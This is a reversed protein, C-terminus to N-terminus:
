RRKTPPTVVGDDDMGKRKVGFGIRVKTRDSGNAVGVPTAYGSGSPTASGTDDRGGIRAFAPKMRTAAPAPSGETSTPAASIPVIGPALESNGVAFSTMDVQQIPMNGEKKKGKGVKAAKSAKSLAANDLVDELQPVAGRNGVSLVMHATGVKAQRKQFAENMSTPTDGSIMAARKKEDAIKKLRKETKMKGSGKGHFRHSLAKWAEKKDMERGFEDYYKIEVDPKYNKFSDMSDRADQQERLRNEYERQTQDKNSGKARLREMERMALRRRNDVLWDDNAKQVKERDGVEQTPATVVGQKRLISLTGALGGSFNENTTGIGDDEREPEQYTSSSATAGNIADAIFNLAAEDDDDESESGGGDERKVDVDMEALPEAGDRKPSLQTKITIAIPKSPQQPVQKVVPDYTIARVFETTDDFTLGEGERGDEDAGNAMATDGNQTAQIAEAEKEAREQALQVAIQEPSIKARKVKQRRSRALAAQLDEDDIFNADMDRQRPVPTPDVQMVTDPEEAPEGAAAALEIDAPARRSSKKKTKPKKFGKDEAYDSIEQNKAYDISLLTKNIATANQEHVGRQTPKAHYEAAGLRFGANEQAGLIDEDYKALVSKKLGDTGNTFEDDDYGTYDRRKTKLDKRKKDKEDEAMDINHLEDEENDLIRSDKLTLIRNEGEDLDEFDHSVKLGALDKETYDELVADRSDLEAQRKAALKKEQKKSRKVWNLTDDVGDDADGLTAGVLRRNLERKNKNKDIKAQLDSKKKQEREEERRKAYNDEATAEQKNVPEKDDTLPKLGLSIRIKNTEELSIGEADAM